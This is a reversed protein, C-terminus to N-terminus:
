IFGTCLSAQCAELSTVDNHLDLFWVDCSVNGAMLIGQTVGLPMTREEKQM